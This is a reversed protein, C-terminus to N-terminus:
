DDEPGTPATHFLVVSFIDYSFNRDSMNIFDVNLLCLDLREPTSFVCCPLHALKKIFRLSSEYSVAFLVLGSILIGTAALARSIIDRNQVNKKEGQSCESIPDHEKHQALHKIGISAKRM